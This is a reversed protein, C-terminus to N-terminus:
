TLDLNTTPIIFKINCLNILKKYLVINIIEFYKYKSKTNDAFEEINM